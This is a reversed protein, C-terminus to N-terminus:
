SEGIRTRSSLSLPILPFNLWLNRQRLEGALAGGGQNAFICEAREELFQPNAPIRDEVCDNVV